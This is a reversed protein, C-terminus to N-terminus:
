AYQYNGTAPDVQIETKPEACKDKINPMLEMLFHIDEVLKPQLAMVTLRIQKDLPGGMKRRNNEIKSLHTHEIHLFQAFERASKNVYKRLFRVEAGTLKCPNCVVGAALTDMLRDMHPIIPDPGCNPCEIVEINCLEVPFGMQDFQHNKRSVTAEGGCEACKTTKM